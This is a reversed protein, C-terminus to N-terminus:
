IGGLVNCGGLFSKVVLFKWGKFINQTALDIGTEGRSIEGGACNSSRRAFPPPSSYRFGRREALRDLDCNKRWTTALSTQVASLFLPVRGLTPAAEPGWTSARACRSSLKKARTAWAKRVGAHMSSRSSRSRLRHVADGIWARLLTSSLSLPILPFVRVLGLLRGRLRIQRSSTLGWCALTHQGQDASLSWGPAGGCVSTQPVFAPGHLLPAGTTGRV